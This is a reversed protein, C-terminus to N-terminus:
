AAFFWNTGDSIVWVAGYNASVIAQTSNSGNILESSHPALSIHNTGASGGTDQVRLIRGATATAPLTITVAGTSTYAVGMIYDPLAGGDVTATSAAISRFGQTMSGLLINTGLGLDARGSYTKFKQAAVGGNGGGGYVTLANIGGNNTVSLVVDTAGMNISGSMQMTFGPTGSGGGSAVNSSLTIGASAKGTLSPCVAGLPLTLVGGGYVLSDVFASGNWSQFHHNANTGPYTNIYADPYAPTVVYNSGNGDGSFSFAGTSFGIVGPLSNQFGFSLTPVIVGGTGELYLNAGNGSVAKISVTSNPAYTDTVAAGFTTQQENVLSSWIGTGSGSNVILQGISGGSPLGGGSGGGVPSWSTFGGVAM